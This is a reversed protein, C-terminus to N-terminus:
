KRRQARGRHGPPPVQLPRTGPSGSSVSGQAWRQRQGQGPWTVEEEHWCGARRNGANLVCLLFPRGPVPLSDGISHAICLNCACWDRRSFSSGVQPGQDGASSLPSALVPAGGTSLFLNRLFGKSQRGGSSITKSLCKSSARGWVQGDLAWWAHVPTHFSHSPVSSLPSGGRM